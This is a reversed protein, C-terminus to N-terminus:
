GNVKLFPTLATVAERISSVNDFTLTLKEKNERM